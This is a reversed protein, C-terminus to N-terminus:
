SGSLRRNLSTLLLSSIVQNIRQRWEVWYVFPREAIEVRAAVFGVPSNSSLSKLDFSRTERIRLIKCVFFCSTLRYFYLAFVSVQSETVAGLQFLQFATLGRYMMHPLPDPNLLRPIAMGMVSGIDYYPNPLGGNYSAPGSRSTLSIRIGFPSTGPTVLALRM